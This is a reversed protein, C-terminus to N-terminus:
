YSKESLTAIHPRISPKVVPFFGTRDYYEEDMLTRLREEQEAPVIFSDHCCLCPIAQKAFEYLISLAIESDIRMLWVGADTGFHKAIQPHCEVALDYVQEFTM